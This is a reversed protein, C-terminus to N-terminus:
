KCCRSVPPDEVDVGQLFGESQGCGTVTRAIGRSQTKVHAAVRRPTAESSRTRERAECGGRPRSPADLRPPAARQHSDGHSFVDVEMSDICETSNIVHEPCGGGWQVFIDEIELVAM